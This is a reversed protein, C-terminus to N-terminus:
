FLVLHEIALGWNTQKEIPFTWRAAFRWGNALIIEVTDFIAGTSVGGDLEIFLRCAYEDSNFPYDIALPINSAALPNGVGVFHLGQTGDIDAQTHFYHDPEAGTYQILPTNDDFPVELPKNNVSDWYNGAVDSYGCRYQQVRFDPALRAFNRAAARRADNVVTNHGKIIKITKRTEADFIRMSVYGQAVEITKGEPDLVTGYQDRNEM